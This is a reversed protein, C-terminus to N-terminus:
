PMSDLQIVILARLKERLRALRGEVARATCGLRIATEELTVRQFYRADLLQREDDGLQALAAELASSLGDDTADATPAPCRDLAARYRSDTRRLDTAANRAARALWNWLATENEVPHLHRVARRWTAQAIEDALAHDAAALALSYRFIRAGWEAHLWRFASEDGRQLAKTLAPTNAFCFAAASAPVTTPAAAESTVLRSSFGPFASTFDQTV